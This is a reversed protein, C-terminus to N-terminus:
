IGDGDAGEGKPMAKGIGELGANFRKIEAVDVEGGEREPIPRFGGTGGKSLFGGQGGKSLPPFPPIQNAPRPAARRKQIAGRLVQYLYGHSKLGILGKNAVEKLGEEILDVSIGYERGDFTFACAEIVARIERTLRLVKVPSLAAKPHARFLEVYELVLAGRAGLAAVEALLDRSAQDRAALELEFTADCMPCRGKM